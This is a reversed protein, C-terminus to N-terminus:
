RSFHWNLLLTLTTLSAVSVAAYTAWAARRQWRDRLRRVASWQVENQLQLVVPLLGECFGQQKLGGGGTAALYCGRFRVRGAAAVIARRLMRSLPQCRDRMGDLFHHVQQNTQCLHHDNTPEDVERDMLRYGLPPILDHCIWALTQDIAQPAAEPESSPTAPLAAGLRRHRQAEPFRDLFAQGGACQDLDTLIVQASLTSESATAVTELDREICMGVHDATELRDAADLPIMVLVGNLPCYPRRSEAIGRCLAALRTLRTDADVQELFTLPDRTPRPQLVQQEGAPGQEHDTLSELQDFTEDLREITSPDEAATATRQPGGASAAPPAPSAVPASPGSPAAPGSAAVPTGLSSAAATALAAEPARAWAHAPERLARSRQQQRRQQVQQRQEAARRSFDHLLSAERCCVYVADQNGCVQVLEGSEEASPLVMLDTHAARFFDRIGGTPRGLILYLPTKQLDIGARSLRDVAEHWSAVVEGDDAHTAPMQLTRAVSWSSWALAYALGGVLPLWVIRLLPLSTRVFSDLEWRWQLYSLGVLGAAVALLHIGWIRWAAWRDDARRLATLPAVVALLAALVQRVASQFLKIM